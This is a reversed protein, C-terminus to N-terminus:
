NDFTLWVLVHDIEGLFKIFFNVLDNTEGWGIVNSKQQMSKVRINFNYCHAASCCDASKNTQALTRSNAM